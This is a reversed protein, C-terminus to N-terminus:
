YTYCQGHPECQRLIVVNITSVNKNSRPCMNCICFDCEANETKIYSILQDLREEYYEYTENMGQSNTANNGGVYVVVHKFEVLNFLKIKDCVTDIKAGPYHLVEM